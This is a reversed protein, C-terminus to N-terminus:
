QQHMISYVKSLDERKKETVDVQRQDEEEPVNGNGYLLAERSVIVDDVRSHHRPGLQLDDLFRLSLMSSIPDRDNPGHIQHM